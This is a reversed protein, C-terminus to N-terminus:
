IYKVGPRGYVSTEDDRFCITDDIAVAYATQTHPSARMKTKGTTRLHRAEAEESGLIIFGLVQTYCAFLVCVIVRFPPDSPEHTFFAALQADVAPCMFMSM